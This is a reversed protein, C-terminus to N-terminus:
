GFLYRKLLRPTAGIWGAPGLERMLVRHNAYFDRFWDMKGKERSGGSATEHHIVAAAGIFRGLDGQRAARLGFDAEFGWANGVFEERFGGTKVFLEKRVAMNCGRPSNILCTGENDFNGFILGISDTWGVIRGLARKDAGVAVGITREAIVSLLEAVASRKKTVRMERGATYLLDPDDAFAALHAELWGPCPIADDDMILIIDADSSLICYNLTRTTGPAPLKEVRIGPDNDLEEQFEEGPMEGQLGLCIRLYPYLSRVQKVTNALVGLRNFSPILLETRLDASSV